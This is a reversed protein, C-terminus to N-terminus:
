IMVGAAQCNTVLLNNSGGGLSTQPIVDSQMSIARNAPQVLCLWRLATATVTKIQLSDLMM